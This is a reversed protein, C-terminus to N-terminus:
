HRPKRFIVPSCIIKGNLDPMVDVLSVGCGSLREVPLSSSFRALIFHAISSSRQFAISLIESSVFTDHLGNVIIRWAECSQHNSLKQCVINHKHRM